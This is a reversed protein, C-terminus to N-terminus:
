SSTGNGKPGVSDPAPRLPGSLRHGDRSNRRANHDRGLVANAWSSTGRLSADCLVPAADLLREEDGFLKLRNYARLWICDKDLVECKGAKTGGCPGNRQNKACQSEPCLYATEPLSCDGCDRCGYMPLKIAREIGHAVANAAKSREVARYVARAAGAGPASDSLVAGHALRGLQFSPALALRRLASARKSRSAEYGRNVVDSSLGSAEDREFYYFEGPQPFQIERAFQRWDDAGFTRELEIV